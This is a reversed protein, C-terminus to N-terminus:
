LVVQRDIATKEQGRGADTRPPFIEKKAIRGLDNDAAIESRRASLFSSHLARFHLGSGL